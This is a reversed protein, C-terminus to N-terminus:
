FSNQKLIERLKQPNKLSGLERELEQFCDFHAKMKEYNRTVMKKQSPLDAGQGNRWDTLATKM